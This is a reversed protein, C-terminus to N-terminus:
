KYYEKITEIVKDVDSETINVNVPLNVVKKCIEEANSCSGSKYGTNVQNVEKPAIPVDYCHGLLIGQDEAFKLLEARNKVLVPYRIPYVEGGEKWDQLQIRGKDISKLGKKYLKAFEIRKKNLLEIKELQNLALKAFVNPMKSKIHKPMEGSEKEDKTTAKHILGLKFALFHITKGIFLVNYYQRTLYAVITYLVQKAIWKKSPFSLFKEQEALKLGLAKQNIVAVGGFSASVAKDRGLSFISADGFTGLLKGNLKTGITHACDEIVFIGKERAIRMVEEIQSPYGFTHQVIIVKTKETIKNELDTIDVNFTEPDIDTFIPTAKAWKVSNVVAVCTFAQIIIEDMEGVGLQKLMFYLATRASEYVSVYKVNFYKRFWEKLRFPYEGECYESLKFLSKLALDFDDKQTNPSLATFIV